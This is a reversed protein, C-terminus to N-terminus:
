LSFINKILAAIDESSDGTAAANFLKVVPELESDNPAVQKIGADDLLNMLSRSAGGIFVWIIDSCMGKELLFKDKLIQQRYFSRATAYAAKVEVARKTALSFCDIRRCGYPTEFRMNDVKLSERTEGYKAMVFWSAVLEGLDGRHRNDLNRINKYFESAFYEASTVTLIANQLDLLAAVIDRAWPESPANEILETPIDFNLQALRSRVEELRKINNGRITQRIIRTGLKKVWFEISDV